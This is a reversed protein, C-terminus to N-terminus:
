AARWVIYAPVAERPAAIPLPTALVRALVRYVHPNFVMGCHTGPVEIAEADGRVCTTWDIIGDSRSYISTEVIPEPLPDQYTAMCSGDCDGRAVLGALYVLPHVRCGNVPAALTIVHAAMEPRALAAARGVVGGLSHGIISVRRGTERRAREMAEIVRETVEAPCGANRDIEPLYPAYGVRKLWQQLERLTANSALMGPVLVVPAGQGLPVGLGAYVPSMRLALWDLGALGEGALNLNHAILDFGTPVV